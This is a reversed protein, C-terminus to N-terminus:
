VFVDSMLRWQDWRVTPDSPLRKLIRREGSRKLQRNNNWASQGFQRVAFHIAKCTSEDINMDRMGALFVDDAVQREHVQTWYMYDHIIAPYTYAGDPRLLSWFVRPISALDTVFGRPVEVVPLPDVESQGPRWGIPDLVVYMPDAFRAMHLPGVLTRASMWDEMWRDRLASIDSTPPNTACASLVAPLAGILSLLSVSQTLVQRRFTIMM